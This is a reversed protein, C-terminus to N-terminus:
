RATALAKRFETNFHDAFRDNVTARGLALFDFRARYHASKRPFAVISVMTSAGDARKIIKYIGAPRDKAGVDAPDGYFLEVKASVRYRRSKVKGLKLEKRAVALLTKIAGKPINGHADTNIGTPLRLAVNNPRRTGGSVMYKMYGSQVPKFKIEAELRDRKAARIYTGRKTFDTPRDLSKDLAAPVARQVDQATRTLAVAAAFNVQKAMAGFSRRVADLNHSINIQM